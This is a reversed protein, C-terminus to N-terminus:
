LSECGSHFVVGEDPFEGSPQSYAASHVHHCLCAKEYAAFAEDPLKQAILLDGLSCYYLGNSPAIELCRTLLKGAAGLHGNRSMLDAAQFLYRDAEDPDIRAAERYAEECEETKGDALLAEGLLCYFAPHDAEMTILKRFTECAKRSEGSLLYAKGMEEQLGIDKPQVAVAKECLAVLKDIQGEQKYIRVLEDYAFGTFVKRQLERDLLIEWYYVSRESDGQDWSAWALRLLVSEEDPHHQKLDELLSIAEGYKKQSLLSDATDIKKTLDKDEIMTDFFLPLFNEGM